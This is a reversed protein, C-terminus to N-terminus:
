LDESKRLMEKPTGQYKRRNEKIGKFVMSQNEYTKRVNPVRWPLGLSFSAYATSSDVSKRPPDRAVPFFLAPPVRAVGGGGGGGFGANQACSIWDAAYIYVTSRRRAELVGM